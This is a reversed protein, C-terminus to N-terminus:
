KAPYGSSTSGSWSRPIRPVSRKKGISWSSRWAPLARMRALKRVRKATEERVALSYCGREPM